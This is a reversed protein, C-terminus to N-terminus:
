ILYPQLSIFHAYHISCPLTVVIIDDSSSFHDAAYVACLQCPQNSFSLNVSRAASRGDGRDYYTPSRVAPVSRDTCGPAPRHPRGALEGLRVSSQTM